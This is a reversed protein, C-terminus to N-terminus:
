DDDSHGPREHDHHSDHDAGHHDADHHSDHDADHHDAGDPVTTADPVATTDDIIATTSSDVEGPDPQAGNDIVNAVPEFTGPGRTPQDSLVGLSIVIAAAASAVILTIGAAIGIVTRREM